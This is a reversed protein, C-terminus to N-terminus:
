KKYFTTNELDDNTINFGADKLINTLSLFGTPNNRNSTIGSLKMVTNQSELMLKNGEIIEASNFVGASSKNKDYFLQAMFPTAVTYVCDIINGNNKNILCCSYMTKLIINNIEKRNINNQQIDCDTEDNNNIFFLKLEEAKIEDPAKEGINYLIKLWLSLLQTSKYIEQPILESEFSPQIFLQINQPNTIEYGNYQGYISFYGNGINVFYSIEKHYSIFDDYEEKTQFSDVQLDSYAYYQKPNLKNKSDYINWIIKRNATDQILKNLFKDNCANKDNVIDDLSVKFYDAVQIIKSLSPDADNGWRSIIGAGFGLEKELNTIKINNKDCLKRINDILTKNDLM